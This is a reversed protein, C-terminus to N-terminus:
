CFNFINPFIFPWYFTFWLVFPLSCPKTVFKVFFQFPQWKLITECFHTLSLLYAVRSVARSLKYNQWYIYKGIATILRLSLLNGSFFNCSQSATNQFIDTHCIQIKSLYCVKPWIKYDMFIWCKFSKWKKRLSSMNKLNKFEIWKEWLQSVSIIRPVNQSM